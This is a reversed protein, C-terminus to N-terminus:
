SKAFPSWGDQAPSEVAATMAGMLVAIGIM